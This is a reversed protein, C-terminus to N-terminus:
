DPGGLLALVASIKVLDTAVPPIEGLALAKIANLDDSLQGLTLETPVAYPNYRTAAPIAWYEDRGAFSLVDGHQEQLAQLVKTLAKELTPLDVQLSM